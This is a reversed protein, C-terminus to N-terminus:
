GATAGIIGESVGVPLERLDLDWVLIMMEPQANALPMGRRAPRARVV